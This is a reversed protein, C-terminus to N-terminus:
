RENELLATTPNDPQVKRRGHDPTRACPPYLELELAGRDSGSQATREGGCVGIALPRTAHLPAHNAPLRAVSCPAGQQYSRRNCLSPLSLLTMPPFGWVDVLQIYEGRTFM